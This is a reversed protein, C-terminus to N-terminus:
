ALNECLERKFCGRTHASGQLLFDVLNAICEMKDHNLVRAVQSRCYMKLVERKLVERKLAGTM